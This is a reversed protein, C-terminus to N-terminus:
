SLPREIEGWDAEFERGCNGCRERGGLQRVRCATQCGPCTVRFALGDKDQGQWITAPVGEMVVDESQLTTLLERTLPSVSALRNALQRVSREYVNRALRGNGFHEDKGALLHRFGLLLRARTPPPLRYHDRDCLTEFIRGLESASYDPFVFTRGFRSSLGPNARLLEAMPGPYGALIVVLRDRDDEMRKLLAQLAEAGYPDDGKEAVLSYAEDIFLVGDLAEDIRKNTKPATQGAYEAVLGSRDTEVLHGKALIGLAGLIRGYLRAVSTKGTGPNGTFVAHLCVPTQPLGYRNREQQMKLFNILERADGKITELGILGDLADLVEPLQDAGAGALVRAARDESELRLDDQRALAVPRRAPPEPELEPEAGLLPVREIARSMETGIWRLQQLARPTAEGDTRAVLRALRLVLSHLEESRAAFSSLQDFPWLLSDWRLHTTESYHLVSEKVQDPTLRRGWAHEFLEQGLRLEAATVRQDAQAMAVYVKLVLGRHLELMRDLFARPSDQILDPHRAAYDRACDRFLREVDRLLARFEEPLSDREDPPPPSM